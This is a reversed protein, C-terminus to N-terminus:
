SSTFFLSCSWRERIWDKKSSSAVPRERPGSLELGPHPARPLRQDVRDGQDRPVGNRSGHHAGAVPGARTAGAVAAARVALAMTLSSTLLVVTNICGLVVNLEKSALAVERPATTRYVAYATLLGGFFMVETALFLWMGSRPRKARSIWTTSSSRCSRSTTAQTTGHDIHHTTATHM